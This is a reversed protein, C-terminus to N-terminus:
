LRGEIKALAASIQDSISAWDGNYKGEDANVWADPDCLEEWRYVRNGIDGTLKEIFAGASTLAEV